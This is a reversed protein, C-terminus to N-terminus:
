FNEFQLKLFFIAVLVFIHKLIKLKEKFIFGEKFNSIMFSSIKYLLNAM